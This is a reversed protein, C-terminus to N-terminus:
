CRLTIGYAGSFMHFAVHLRWEGAAGQITTSDSAGGTFTNLYRREPTGDTVEVVVSGAEGNIGVNLDAGSGCKIDRLESGQKGEASGSLSMSNPSGGVTCGALAVM